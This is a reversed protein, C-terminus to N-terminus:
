KVVVKFVRDAVRVIYVGDVIVEIKHERTLVLRMGNMSIVEVETDEPATVVIVRDRVAVDIEEADMDNIGTMEDVTIACQATLGNSTSATIVATGVKLGRVLGTEDVSAITADSSSWVVTPNTADAPTVTATLQVTGGVLIRAQTVNLEISPEIIAADTLIQLSGQAGKPLLVSGHELYYPLMEEGNFLISIVNVGDEPHIFVRMGSDDDGTQIQAGNFLSAFYQATATRQAARRRVMPGAEPNQEQAAADEAAELADEELMQQYEEESVVSADVGEDIQVPIINKITQFKGWGPADLYSQYSLTPVILSVYRMRLGDFAGLEATPAQLAACSINALKRDGNLIQTGVTTTTSPMSVAILRPCDSFLNTGVDQLSEPLTAAVLRRNGSFASSGIANVSSTFDINRLATGSFANRGISSVAEPLIVEDLEYCGEFAAGPIETLASASLDVTELQSCYSFAGEGLQALAENAVISSIATRSFASQGISELSEPLTPLDVRVSGSFAYDGITKLSAPLTEIQLLGCDAFAYSGISELKSPLVIDTLMSKKFQGEPIATVNTVESMDLSTLAAMNEKIIVLDNATLPGVVKMKTVSSPMLGTTLRIETSIASNGTMYITVESQAEEIINNIQKWRANTSYYDHRGANVILTLQDNQEETLPFAASLTPPTHAKIRLTYLKDFSFAEADINKIGSGITLVSPRGCSGMPLSMVQNPVNMECIPTGEFARDDITTLTSPLNVTSIGSNDAFAESAIEELGESFNVIRLANGKFVGQSIKKLSSGITLNSISQNLFAHEGINAVNNPIVLNTISGQPVDDWPNSYNSSTAFAYAGISELTTPFTVEDLACGTFAYGGIKKLQLPFFVNQLNSCDKFLKYDIYELDSILVARELATCGEFVGKHSWVWESTQDEPTINGLITLGSPLTIETLKTCDKYAGEDIRNLAAPFKPSELLECGEFASEGIEELGSPFIVSYLEKNKYFAYAGIRKISTPLKVEDRFQLGYDKYDPIETMGEKLEPTKVEVGGVYPTGFWYPNSFLNGLKVNNYWADWDSFIVEAIQIGEFVDAEIEELTSPITLFGIHGFESPYSTTTDISGTLLKTVGEPIAYSEGQDVHVYFLTKGNNTLVTGDSLFITTEPDFYKVIRNLASCDLGEPALVCWLPANSLVDEGFQVNTSLIIFSCLNYCYSFANNGILTVSAPICVFKLSRCNQFANTGITIVADPIRVSLLSTCNYFASSEIKTISNPIDISCLSECDFFTGWEIAKLSEPLKVFSLANCGYFVADGMKMVTSPIEVSVLGSCNSFAWAGIGTVRCEYGEESVITEPIVIDTPNGSHGTVTACFIGDADRGTIEYNIGDVTFGFVKMPILLSCILLFILNQRM